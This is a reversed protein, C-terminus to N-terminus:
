APAVLGRYELLPEIQPPGGYFDEFLRIPDVTRGRSLIKERLCQGNARTLGGREHLWRGVNRALVESWIYAYYGASYGGSFIHLFYWSHYRPPIPDYAVGRRRLIDAEFQVVEAAPPTQEASLRHWAQDIIASQVYESTRHGQDFNQAALVKELLATPMAAGTQYHRAFNALVAPERTWMENYQSPFEVFDRPVRIGSLLPFCVNSLLGHLAHGFEHFMATVDEFTLLSPAGSAPKPINLQNVVVPKRGLLQSQVAFHNMWAGGQKNDRAYFDAVFLGLASGDAEFVEFVRVDPHYAPLDHREVFSLGFLESAVFFVGDQLVRNLEFYPKVQSLDFDYKTKRVQAAYFDWDWPQLTSQAGILQEIGAAQQRAYYLAAAAIRQLMADVAASSGATEDKLVYTAHDPCGLLRAREARLRVIEAIIGTNDAEGGRARQTSVRFIRERVDRRTLQSLLPQTTTNQLAIVWKGGLGRAAANAAAAALEDPALGDLQAEDDILVASDRSSRLVNQRFQTTLTSLRSNLERLRSKDRESLLAGARVFQVRYRELLQLSEADLKLQGRHAYLQEIRAFLPPLLYIADEHAALRPAMESEIQLMAADGDSSSLNSFASDVRDLLRGSRELAVITNDFTAPAPNACIAQVEQRHQEIGALYAPVFDTSRIRDFPPFQYPLASPHFFPNDPSM